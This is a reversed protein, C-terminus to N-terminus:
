FFFFRLLSFILKIRLVRCQSYVIIYLLHLKFNTEVLMMKLDVYFSCNINATM